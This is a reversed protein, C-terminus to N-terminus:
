SSANILSVVTNCLVQIGLKIHRPQTFEDPNHSLGQRSPVFIMGTPVHKSIQQSDHGAGSPMRKSRVGVQDCAQAVADIVIPSMTAPADDSIVRTTVSVGIRASVSNACELVTDGIRLIEAGTAARIEQTLRVEGPVVNSAGPLIECDGFTLRVDPGCQQEVICFAESVALCAAHFADARLHHPTTGAHNPQGHFTLHSNQLGVINEVIGIEIGETELIPGQEIHLEIFALIDDPSRAADPIKEPPLGFARMVDVLPTGDRGTAALVEDQLLEAFMARAGLLSIYAGEEDAFAVVEYACSMTPAVDSLCRAVELSGVVGLMGDYIGGGPVTDIHSGSLIAPGAAPGLRGILNGAPDLRVTMGIARMESALWDIATRYQPSFVPRDMGGRDTSGFRALTELNDLVREGRIPKAILDGLVRAGIEQCDVRPGTQFAARM